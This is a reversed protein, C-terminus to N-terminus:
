RWKHACRKPFECAVPFANASLRSDHESRAALVDGLRRQYHDTISLRSRDSNATGQSFTADFDLVQELSNGEWQMVQTDSDVIKPTVGDIMSASEVVIENHAGAPTRVGYKENNSALPMADKVVSTPPRSVPSRISSLSKNM